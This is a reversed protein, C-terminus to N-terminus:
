KSLDVTTYREGHSAVGFYIGVAAGALVLAAVPFIWWYRRVFSPREVPKDVPPTPAVQLLPPKEVPVAPPPSPVDDIERLARQADERKAHSEADDPQTSLYQRYYLRAQEQNGLRRYAQGINILFAPRMTAEYGSQFEGIAEAYRGLEYLKRGADFHIRGADAEDPPAAVATAAALAVLLAAAVRAM